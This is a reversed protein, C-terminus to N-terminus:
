LIFYLSLDGSSSQKMTPVGLFEVSRRRSMVFNMQQASSQTCMTLMLLVLVSFFLPGDISSYISIWPLGLCAALSVFGDRSSPSLDGDM